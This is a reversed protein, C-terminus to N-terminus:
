LQQFQQLLFFLFKYDLIYQYLIHFCQVFIGHGQHLFLYLLLLFNILIVLGFKIVLNPKIIQSLLFVYTLNKYNIYHYYHFNNIQLFLFYLVKLLHQHSDLFFLVLKVTFYIYRARLQITYYYCMFM